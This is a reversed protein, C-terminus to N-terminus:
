KKYIEMILYDDEDYSALYDIGTYAYKSLENYIDQNTIGASEINSKTLYCSTKIYPLTFEPSLLPSIVNTIYNLIYTKKDTFNIEMEIICAFQSSMRSEIKISIQYNINRFIRKANEKIINEIYPIDIDDNEYYFLVSESDKYRNNNFMLQKLNSLIVSSMKDIYDHLMNKNINMNTIQLVLYKTNSEKNLRFFLNYNFLIKTKDIKEEIIKELEDLTITNDHLDKETINTILTYYDKPVGLSFYELGLYKNNIIYKDFIDLIKNIITEKNM